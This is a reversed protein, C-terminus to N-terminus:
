KKEKEEPAPTVTILEVRFKLASGPTIKDGASRDGYALEAPIWLIIEGGEDIYKLGEGWGKIVQNLGFSATEGREYSSDFVTGDLLSGEYNVEVKDKDNVPKVGNGDRVVKYQLGSATTIVGEEQGNKEFFEAAAAANLEKIANNRKELFGNITSYFLEQDLEVGAVADKIGKEIENLNLTGFNNGKIVQGFNYGIMYSASDVESATIGEPQKDKGTYNGCSCLVLSAAACIAIAKKM